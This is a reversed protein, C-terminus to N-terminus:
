PTEKPPAGEAAASEKLAAELAERLRAIDTQDAGTHRSIERGDRYVIALPLSEIRFQERVTRDILFLRDIDVKVVTAKGAFEEALKEM